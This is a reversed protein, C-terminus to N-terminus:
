IYYSIELKFIYVDKPLDLLPTIYRYREVADASVQKYMELEVKRLHKRVRAM